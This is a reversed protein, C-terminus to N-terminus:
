QFYARNFSEIQEVTPVSVVVYLNKFQRKLTNVRCFVMGFGGAVMVIM